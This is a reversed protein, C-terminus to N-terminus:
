EIDQNYYYTKQKRSTASETDVFFCLWDESDFGPPM